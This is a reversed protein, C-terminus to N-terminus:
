KEGMKQLQKEQESEYEIYKTIYKGPSWAAKVPKIQPVLV